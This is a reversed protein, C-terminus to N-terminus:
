PLRARCSTGITCSGIVPEVAFTLITGNDSGAVNGSIVGEGSSNPVSRLAPLVIVRAIRFTKPIM